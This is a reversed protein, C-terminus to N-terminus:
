PMDQFEVLMKIGQPYDGFKEGFLNIGGKNVADKKIGIRMTILRSASLNLAELTVASAPLDNILSEDSTVKWTTLKGYQTADLDWFSPTYTGRRGGYDGQSQYTGIEVGNIWMTIDSKLLTNYGPAESCLELSFALSTIPLRNPNELPIRYELYGDRFWILQAKLRDPSLFYAPTDFNSKDPQSDGTLFGCTPVAEFGMYNGIPINTESFTRDDQQQGGRILTVVLDTYVLSCLKKSGNRAPLLQSSVLGAAELIKVNASITSLPYGLINSLELCSLVQKELLEIINLRMETSLAHCVKALSAKDSISLDLM